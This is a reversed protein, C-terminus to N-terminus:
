LLLPCFSLYICWGDLISKGIFQKRALLWAVAIGLPLSVMVAVFSIKLSLSLAEWELPTLLM